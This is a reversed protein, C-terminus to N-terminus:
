RILSIIAVQQNQYTTISFQGFYYRDCTDKTLNPSSYSM